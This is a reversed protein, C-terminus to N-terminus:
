GDFRIPCVEKTLHEARTRPYKRCSPPRILYISCRTKGARTTRLWPCRYPLKCCAGCRKCIGRRSRDVPFFATLQRLLKAVFTNRSIV